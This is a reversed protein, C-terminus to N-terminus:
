GEDEDQVKNPPEPDFDKVHGKQHFEKHAKVALHNDEDELATQQKNEAIYASIRKLAEFETMMM